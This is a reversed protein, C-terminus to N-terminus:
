PDKKRKQKTELCINKEFRRHIKIIERAESITYKRKVPRNNRKVLKVQEIDRNRLHIM